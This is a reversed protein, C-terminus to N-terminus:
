ADFYGIVEAPSGAALCKAPLPELVVSNAGVVSFSGVHATVTCKAMITVHDGITLPRRIATVGAAAGPEAVGSLAPAVRGATLERVRHTGDVLLADQDLQCREGIDVVSACQILAAGTVMTGAGIEVRAGPGTLEVRFGRRFECGPGILLVGGGPAEVAFGPGAYVPEVFEIRALPNRFRAWRKRGWSLFLPLPGPPYLLWLRLGGIARVEGPVSRLDRSLRVIRSVLSM